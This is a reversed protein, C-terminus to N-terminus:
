LDEMRAEIEEVLKALQEEMARHGALPGAMDIVKSAARLAVSDSESCMLRELTDVAVTSLNLLRATSESYIETQLAAVLDKIEPRELTRAVTKASIDHMQAIQEHTLGIARKEAISRSRPDIDEPGVNVTMPALSEESQTM